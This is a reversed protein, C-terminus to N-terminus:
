QIKQDLKQMVKDIVSPLTNVSEVIIKSRHNRKSKDWGHKLFRNNSAPMNLTKIDEQNISEKIM